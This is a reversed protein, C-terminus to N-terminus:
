KAHYGEMHKIITKGIIYALEVPVANGIHIGLKKISLNNNKQDIFKYNTPFTQLLSGERLSLSRDQVPHGFRGTGYNYFQTTITPSPEDWKMRGYVSCYSRGSDKRHCELLLTEDWDRWTGGPKSQRIRKLNLKSLNSSRHLPDKSSIQGARIPELSGITDEVTKYNDKETTQPLLEIPGFKSALLVLRTRTQPIGYDPCFVVETSINYHNEKLVGIFRDFIISNRIQPVNEMSVIDPKSADVLRGFHGLLGWKEDENRNKNKQTHSSFPQCPACGVLIHIDSEGYIEELDKKKLEKIDACFFKAGRNNAEYAFKCSEDSDIGAVVKIGSQILGQTMGGVGCFIDIAKAKQYKM